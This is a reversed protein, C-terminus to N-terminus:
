AKLLAQALEDPHTLLFEHTGPVMIPEVSLRAAFDTSPRPLGHDDESLVYAAPVGLAAVASGDLVDEGYNGPQPVLLELLFRQVPEPEGQMLLQQIIELTPVWTLDPTSRIAARIGAAL